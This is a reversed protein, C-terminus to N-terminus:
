KSSCDIHICCRLCRSMVINCRHELRLGCGCFLLDEDAMDTHEHTLSQLGSFYSDPEVPSFSIHIVHQEVGQGGQSPGFFSFPWRGPFCHFGTPVVLVVVPFYLFALCQPMGDEDAMDCVQPQSPEEDSSTDVEISPADCPIPKESMLYSILFLVRWFFHVWVYYRIYIIYVYM